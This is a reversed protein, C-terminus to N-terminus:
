YEDVLHCFTDNSPGFTFTISTQILHSHGGHGHEATSRLVARECRDVKWAHSVGQHTMDLHVCKSHLFALDVTFQHLKIEEM